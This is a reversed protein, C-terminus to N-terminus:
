ILAAAGLCVTILGSLVIPIIFFFVCDLLTIAAFCVVMLWQTLRVAPFAEASLSGLQWALVSALLLFVSVSIGFGLYFDWYTRSFGLLNFHSTQVAHLDVGWSPDSLRPSGAGGLSM